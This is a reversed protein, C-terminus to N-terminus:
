VAADRNRKDTLMILSKSKLAFARSKPCEFNCLAELGPNRSIHAYGRMWQRHKSPGHEHWEAIRPRQCHVGEELPCMRKAFYLHIVENICGRAPLLCGMLERVEVQELKAPDLAVFQRTM